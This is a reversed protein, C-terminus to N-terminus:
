LFGAPLRPKKEGEIKCKAVAFAVAVAFAFAFVPFFGQFCAM